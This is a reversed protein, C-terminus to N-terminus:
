TQQLIAIKKQLDAKFNQAACVMRSKWSKFVPVYSGKPLEIIIDNSKGETSYYVELLKRLRVGHARVIANRNGSFDESYKLANVAITYEKIRDARYHMAEQVIFELFCFLIKSRKFRQFNLIRQLEFNIEENSFNFTVTSTSLLM